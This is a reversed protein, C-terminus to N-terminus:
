QVVCEPLSSKDILSTIHARIKQMDGNNLVTHHSTIKGSEDIVFSTSAGPLDYLRAVEGKPDRLVRYNVVERNVFRKAADIDEDISIVIVEFQTGGPDDQPEAIQLRYEINVANYAV